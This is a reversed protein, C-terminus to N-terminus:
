LTCNYKLASSVSRSRFVTKLSWYCKNASTIRAYIEHDITNDLSIYSGLYKFHEVVEIMLDGVDVFDCDRRTRTMELAKTKESIELGVRRSSRIFHMVHPDRPIFREGYLDVDDAYGIRYLRSM